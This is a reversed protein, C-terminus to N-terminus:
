AIRRCLTLGDAISLHSVEVRPDATIAKNFKRTAHALERDRESLPEDPPAVVSGGWLTNDYAIIGGIRLLKLVREHYNLYNVKDADIFAFDFNGENNEESVLENLIPLAPGERFDVKHAMGAKEIIPRGIEYYERKMDIAIIQGDSPLALATALLSYGTFVGIELTNKANLIKLLMGLFQTEDPSSAMTGWPHQATILRLERMCEHERPYVSTELIYKYVADSKLLTKSDSAAM